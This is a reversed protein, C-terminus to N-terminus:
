DKKKDFVPPDSFITNIVDDYVEPIEFEENSHVPSLSKCDMPVISINNNGCHVPELSEEEIILHELDKNYERTELKLTDQAQKVECKLDKILNTLSSEPTTIDDTCPSLAESREIRPINFEPKVDESKVVGVDNEDDETLPLGSKRKNKPM